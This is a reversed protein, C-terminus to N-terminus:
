LKHVVRLLEQQAPELSLGWGPKDPVQVRGLVAPFLQQEM